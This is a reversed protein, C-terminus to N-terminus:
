ARIVLKLSAPTTSSDVCHAATLMWISSILTGGCFAFNTSATKISVFFPYAGAPAITGGVIRSPPPSDPIEDGKKLTSPSPSAAPEAEEGRPETDATTRVAGSRYDEATARSEDTVRDSTTAQSTGIPNLGYAVPTVALSGLCLAITGLAALPRNLAARRKTTSDTSHM